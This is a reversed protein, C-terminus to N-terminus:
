NTPRSCCLDTTMKTDKQGEPAQRSASLCSVGMPCEDLGTLDVRNPISFMIRGNWFPQLTCFRGPRRPLIRFDTGFLQANHVYTNCPSAGCFRKTCGTIRKLFEGMIEKNRASTSSFHVACQVNHRVPTNHTIEGREDARHRPGRFEKWGEM